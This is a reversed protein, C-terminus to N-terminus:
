TSSAPRPSEGKRTAGFDPGSPVIALANQYRLPFPGLFVPFVRNKESRIALVGHFHPNEVHLRTARPSVATGVAVLLQGSAQWLTLLRQWIAIANCNQASNV